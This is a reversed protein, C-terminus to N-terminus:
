LQPETATNSYFDPKKMQGSFPIVHMCFRISLGKGV